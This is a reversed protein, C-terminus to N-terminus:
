IVRSLTDRGVQDTDFFNQADPPKTMRRFDAKLPDRPALLPAAVAMFVILAAAFGGVAALTNRRVFRALETFIL